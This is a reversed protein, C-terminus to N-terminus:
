VGALIAEAARIKDASTRSAWNVAAETRKRQRGADDLGKARVPRFHDTWETFANYVAWGNEGLMPANLPGERYLQEVAARESKATTRDGKGRDKGPFMAALLRDLAPGGPVALMAEAKAKIQEEAAAAYGIAAAAQRIREEANSTHKVKIAQALGALGVRVTNACVARVNTLGFTNCWTLDYSTAVVLGREITDAIGGPDIVLDLFRLYAFFREGHDGLAGMTDFCAEDSRGVIEAALAAIDRRQQGTVSYTSGVAKMPGYKSSVTARSNPIEVFGEATLAYAPELTIEDDCGSAELMAELTQDGRVPTGLGHWPNGREANYAFQTDGNHHTLEHAM